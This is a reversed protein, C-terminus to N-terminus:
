PTPGEALPAPSPEHVTRATEALVIGTLVVVAGGIQVPTLTEGLAAWAVIGALPPEATGILGVRAAGILGLATLVLSFPLVTGFVTVYAVLVGVPAHLGTDGVPVTAGLAPFPFNWWPAIVCFFLAASGFSWAAVSWPDRQGVAREGLVYYAALSIAALAATIVGLGDLTLGSWVQAVLALGGIILALASWVRAKVAEKRVFRVYLAILLPATFEILLSISVPMRSISVFYLWQVMAVGVIGYTAVFGLERLGIRLSSPDRLTAIVAFVLATTLCRFEVLQLASLGSQLVIKSVTGNVAFVAAATLVLGVGLLPHAATRSPAEHM